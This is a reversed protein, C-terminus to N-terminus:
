RTMIGSEAPQGWDATLRDRRGSSKRNACTFRDLISSKEDGAGYVGEFIVTENCAFDSGEGAASGTGMIKKM